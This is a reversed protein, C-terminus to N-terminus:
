SMTAVYIQTLMPEPSPKYHLPVLGNGSGINVEWHNPEVAYQKLDIECHTGLSSNQINLKFIICTGIFNSGWREQVM